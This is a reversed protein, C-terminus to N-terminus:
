RAGDKVKEKNKRGEVEQKFLEIMNHFERVTVINKDIRYGIWKSLGIITKGIDGGEKRNILDEIESELMAIKNKIFNDETIIWDLRAEALQQQLEILYIFDTSLGFEKYYEDKILDSYKEDNSKSGKSLSRRCFNLEGSNIKIWNILPLDDISKYYNDM